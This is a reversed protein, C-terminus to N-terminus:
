SVGDEAYVFREYLAAGIAMAFGGRVQRDFLAPNLISAVSYNRRPDVDHRGLCTRGSQNGRV